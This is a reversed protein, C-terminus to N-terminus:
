KVKRDICPYDEDDHATKKNWCMIHVGLHHNVVKDKEVRNLPSM